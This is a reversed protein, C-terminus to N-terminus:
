QLWAEEVLILGPIDSWENEYHRWRIKANVPFITDDNLNINTQAPVELFRLTDGEIEVFWGGCYPSACRRYDVGLITADELQELTGFGCNANQNCAAFFVVLGGLFFLLNKM